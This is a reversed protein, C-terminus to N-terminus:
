NLQALNPIIENNYIGNKLVFPHCRFLGSFILSFYDDFSRTILCVM